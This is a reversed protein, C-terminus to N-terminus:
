PRLLLGVVETARDLDPENHMAILPYLYSEGICVIVYALTQTDLHLHRGNERVDKELLGQLAAMLRVRVMGDPRTLLRLAFASEDRLFQLFAESQGLYRNYRRYTGIFDPEGSAQADQRARTLTDRSLSWLVESVLHERNGMHRYITIRSLGLRTAIEGIDLREHALFMTRAQRLIEAQRPGASVGPSGTGAQGTGTTM